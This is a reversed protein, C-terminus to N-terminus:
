VVSKRDECFSRAPLYTIGDISIPTNSLSKQGGNYYFNVPHYNVTKTKNYGAAQMPICALLTVVTAAVIWKKKNKLQM